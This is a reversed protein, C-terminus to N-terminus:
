YELLTFTVAVVATGSVGTGQRIVLPLWTDAPIYAGGGFATEELGNVDFARGHTNQQELQTLNHEDYFDFYSSGTSGAPTQYLIRGAWSLFGATTVRLLPVSPETTNDPVFVSNDIADVVSATTWDTFHNTSDGYVVTTSGDGAHSGSHTFNSTTYCGRHTIVAGGGAPLCNRYFNRAWREMEDYNQRERPDGSWDKHPIHLDCASFGISVDTM